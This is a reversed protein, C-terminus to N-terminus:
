KEGEKTAGLLSPVILKFSHVHTAEDENFGVQTAQYMEAMVESKQVHGNTISEMLSVVDHLLSLSIGSMEKEMFLAADTKSNFAQDRITFHDSPLWAEILRLQAKVTELDGRSVGLPELTFLRSFISELEQHFGSSATSSPLQQLARAYNERESSLLTLLEALDATTKEM